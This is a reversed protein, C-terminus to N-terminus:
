PTMGEHDLGTIPRLLQEVTRRYSEAGRRVMDEGLAKYDCECGAGALLIQVATVLEALRWEGRQLRRYLAPLSGLEDEIELWTDFRPEPAYLRGDFSMTLTM